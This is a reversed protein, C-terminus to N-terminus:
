IRRIANYKPNNCDSYLVDRTCRYQLVRNKTTKKSIINKNKQKDINKTKWTVYCLLWTDYSVYLLGISWALFNELQSAGIICICLLFAILGFGGWGKYAVKKKTKYTTLQNIYRAEIM